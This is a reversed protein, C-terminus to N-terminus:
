YFNLKNTTPDIDITVEGFDHSLQTLIKGVYDTYDGDWFGAGHRNRTLWFDHMLTESDLKTVTAAGLIDLATDYFKTCEHYAVDQAEESFDEATYAEDLSIDGDFSPHTGTSSWLATELYQKVFTNM